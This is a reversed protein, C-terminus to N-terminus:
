KIEPKKLHHETARQFADAIEIIKGEGLHPGIIQMGVPLGTSTFGAPVSMAPVGAPNIPVTNVDALYMSLPDELKEGIKFAPFPSVPTILVDYKKFADEYERKILSRVQSAKKYYADFYGSSLTYTGMMISRKAENGFAETRNKFYLDILDKIKTKDKKLNSYGYRIGDYRALNSSAESKAIIYYMAIAFDTSPLSMEEVEAGLSELKKIADKLIKDVEASLGQGYFEKPIGIKKGKIDKGLFSTYDPLKEKVTTSDLPDNGAIINLIIAVDAASKAIPGITDFSSAYSVVGNRSVLGYTVKLGTASCFSAPQRISGGTDTGLAFLCEDAAVAAASGGSSGGPVRSTDWPNHTPGFASNETSSGMTFEDTNVKGLMIAGANELKEVVTADYAPIFDELIKSAATTKVGKTCFVDKLAVPIGDLDSLPKGDVYRKDSEKAQARAIEFTKTIYSNIEPEVKEIREIISELIKSSTIEGAKLKTSAEQITLKYLNEM